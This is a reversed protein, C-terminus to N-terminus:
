KVSSGPLNGKGPDEGGTGQQRARLRVRVVVVGEWVRRCWWWVGDCVRRWRVHGSRDVVRMCAGVVWVMVCVVGGCMGVEIMLVYARVMLAVWVMVCVRGWRVYGSRDEVCICAGDGWVM